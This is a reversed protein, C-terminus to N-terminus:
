MTMPLGMAWGCSNVVFTIDKPGVLIINTFFFAVGSENCTWLGQLRVGLPPWFQDFLTKCKQASGHAVGHSKKMKKAM